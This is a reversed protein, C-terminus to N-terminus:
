AKRLDPLGTEFGHACAAGGALVLLGMRRLWFGAAAALAIGGWTLLGPITTLPPLGSSTLRNEPLASGAAAAGATPDEVVPAGSALGGDGAGAGGGAGADGGGPAPDGPEEVPEPDAGPGNSPLELAPVTLTTSSASALTIVLRPSLKNITDLLNKLEAAEKPLADLITTLPVVSLLGRLKVADIEVRVGRATTRGEVGSKTREVPPLTISIGLQELAKAPTDSLGPISGGRGAVSVGDPGISVLQGAVRLGSVRVAGQTTSGTGDGSTRARASIGDITVLGGALSVDAIASRAVTVVDDGLTTRSTSSVAGVDVLLELERPIGPLSPEPAARLGTSGSSVTGVSNGGGLLPLGGLGVGDVGLGDVGLGPLEPLGPVSPLGPLGPTGSGSEEDGGETIEEGTSFGTSSRAEEPTASARMKTGPFPEIAESEPGSPDVANVQVPYGDRGLEPPLGLQEVFTKFGTGVSDGPWLWSATSSLQGTQGRVRSFAVNIEAQPDTPIPITPEYIEVRVPTAWAESTYGVYEPQAAAPGAAGFPLALALLGTASAGAITRRM